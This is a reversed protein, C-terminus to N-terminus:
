PAPKFVIEGEEYLGLRDHAKEKIYEESEVYARMEDAEEFRKQEQAIEQELEQRINDTEIIRRSLKRDQVLLVMFLIAVVATIVLVGIRNNRARRGARSRSRKKTKGMNDGTKLQM